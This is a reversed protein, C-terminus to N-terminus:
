NEKADSFEGQSYRRLISGDPKEKAPPTDPVNSFEGQSYRKLIGAQAKEKSPPGDPV